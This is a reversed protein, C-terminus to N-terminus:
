DASATTRSAGGSPTRSSGRDSAELWGAQDFEAIRAIRCSRGGLVIRDANTLRGPATQVLRLGNAERADAICPQMLEVAYFRNRNVRLMVWERELVQWDVLQAFGISRVEEGVFDGFPAMLPQGRNAACATLALFFIMSLVVTRNIKTM